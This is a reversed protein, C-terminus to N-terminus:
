AFPVRAAASRPCVPSFHLLVFAFPFPTCLQALLGCNRALNPMDTYFYSRLGSDRAFNPTGTYFYSPLDSDRACSLLFYSPLDSDRACSPMDMYFYRLSGSGRNINPCFCLRLGSDRVISPMGM